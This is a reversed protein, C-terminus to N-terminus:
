VNVFEEDGACRAANAAFNGGAEGGASGFESEAAARFGFEGFDGGSAGAGGGDFADGGVEGRGVGGLSQDGFGVFGHAPNIADDVTGADAQNLRGGVGGVGFEAFDDVGVEAAREENGLGRALHHGRLLVAEEDGEGADETFRHHFVGRRIDCALKPHGPQDLGQGLFVLAAADPETEKEEAADVGREPVFDVHRHLAVFHDRDGGRGVKNELGDVGRRVKHQGFDDQLRFAVLQDSQGSKM